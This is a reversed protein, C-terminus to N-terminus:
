KQIQENVLCIEDVMLLKWYWLRAVENKNYLYMKLIDLDGELKLTMPNIDLVVVAFHPLACTHAGRPCQKIWIYFVSYEYSFSM